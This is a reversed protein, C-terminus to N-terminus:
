PDVADSLGDIVGFDLRFNELKELRHGGILRDGGEGVDVGGLLVGEDHGGDPFDGVLLIDAHEPFLVVDAGVGLGSSPDPRIM